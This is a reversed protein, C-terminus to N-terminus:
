SAAEKFGSNRLKEFFADYGLFDLKTRAFDTYDLEDADYIVSEKDPDFKQMNKTFDNDKIYTVGGGFIQKKRYSSIAVNNEIFDNRLAFVESLDKVAIGLNNEKIKNNYLITKTNEGISVGKDKFSNFSNNELLILSGSLDIGDGNDDGGSDTFKSNYVYGKCFDLDVQDAFNHSFDCESIRVSATKINLGDDGKNDHIFCNDMEVDSHYLSLAGICFIGNIFADSGGSLDLYSVKNTTKGDGIVCFSGFPGKGKFDSIVVPEKKTGKIDLPSYSLISIEPLIKIETGAEIILTFGEPIVLNEDIEYTGKKIIIDTRNLEADINFDEKLSSVLFEKEILSYYLNQDAYKIVINEDTLENGSYSNKAEIKIGTLNIKERDEFTIRYRFKKKKPYLEEDLGTFLIKDKFLDKFETDSKKIKYEKKEQKDEIDGFDEIIIVEENALPTDLILMFKEMNIEANSDPFVTIDLYNDKQKSEVYIMSHRFNKDLLNINNLITEYQKQVEHKIRKSGWLITNDQILLSTYKKDLYNYHDLSKEKNKLLFYLKKNRSSRMEDIKVLERPLAAVHNLNHEFGGKEATLPNIPSELRAILFFKGSSLDYGIRLNFLGLDHDKGLISQWALFSATKDADFLEELKATNNESSANILEMVKTLIQKEYESDIEELGGIGFDDYEFAVNIGGINETGILKDIFSNYLKTNSYRIVVSDSLKNKELFENDINEEMYYIGQFVGNKYVASLNMNMSPLELLEAIKNSFLPALLSRDHPVIFNIRRMNDIYEDNKTKIKFSKKYFGYHTRTEGHLAMKVDNYREGKYDLIIKRYDRAEEPRTHGKGETESINIAKEFYRMDNPSLYFRFTPLNAETIQRKNRFINIDDVLKIAIWRVQILNFVNGTLEDVKPVVDFM